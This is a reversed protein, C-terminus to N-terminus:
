KQERWSLVQVEYSGTPGVETLAEDYHVQADGSIDVSQAVVSGWIEATGRIDITGTPAYIGGYFQMSGTMDSQIRADEPSALMMVLYGPNTPEGITAHGSARLAGTLYVVVPGDLLLTDGGNVTMSTFCYEGVASSLEVTNDSQFPDPNCPVDEPVVVPEMILDNSQPVFPPDGTIIATGGDVDVVSDPDGGEGVAVQGNIAISGSIVVDAVGTGNTGIDGNQGPNAPDYPGLSSDYSDTIVDGSINMQQDGFLAFQFVSEPILGAVAEVDRQSAQSAGHGTIRYELSGLTPDELSDTVEAWFAGGSLASSAIDIGSGGRLNAVARDISAEALFLSARESRARSSHREESASQLLLASGFITIM